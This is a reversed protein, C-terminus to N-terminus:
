ITLVLKGAVTRDALRRLAEPMQEWPLEGAVQPDLRGDAVLGALYALDRGPPDRALGPFILFSQLRVAGVSYVDSVNFTTQQRSSNGFMVLTGDPHVMTALRALSEGGASELILDYRGELQHHSTVVTAAGLEELGAAREPSGVIATVEAGGLRALQIAFRGVGGAAGTILVRRGLIDPGLRLIRLATLGAVPLAAAQAFSVKAPLEALWNGPIAVREAWGGGGLVGVVRSGASPGGSAAERVTGAVDWGPRWGPAAAVLRNLEGRNLSIAHVDVIAEGRAPEPEPVEQLAIGGPARPDAVLARM